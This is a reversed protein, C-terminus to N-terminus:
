ADKLWIAAAQIVDSREADTTGIRQILLRAGDLLTLGAHIACYRCQFGVEHDCECLKPDWNRGGNALFALEITSTSTSNM